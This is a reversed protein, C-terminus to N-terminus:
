RGTKGRTGGERRDVVGHASDACCTSYMDAVGMGLLRVSVIQPSISTHPAHSMFFKQPGGVMLNERSHDPVTFLKARVRGEQILLKQEFAKSIFDSGTIRFLIDRVLLHEM